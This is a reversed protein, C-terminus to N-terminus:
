CLEVQAELRGKHEDLLRARGLRVEMLDEGHRLVLRGLRSLASIGDANEPFHAVVSELLGAELAQRFLSVNEGLEVTLIGLSALDRLLAGLDLRDERLPLRRAGPVMASDVSQYLITRETPREWAQRDLVVLWSDGKREKKDGAMVLLADAEAPLAADGGLSLDYEGEPVAKLEVRARLVALGRSLWHSYDDLLQQALRAEEGDALVVEIGMRELTRSGEGRYRQAPDLTGVVVRKVGLQRISETVPPLRDFGAKPELTLYLTVDAPSKGLSHYSALLKRVADKDDGPLFVAHALEGTESAVLAAWCPEIRLGLKRPPHKAERVLECAKVLFSRDQERFEGM